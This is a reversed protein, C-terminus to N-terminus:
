TIILSKRLNEHMKPHIDSNILTGKENSKPEKTAMQRSDGTQMACAPERKANEKDM